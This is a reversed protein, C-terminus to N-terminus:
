AAQDIDDGNMSVEMARAPCVGVCLGCATCKDEDFIIAMEPRKVYLAGTPCIGTCAGCQYCKEEDRRISGAMSRVEVGIDKLYQIGKKVNSKHGRFEIVMVGEQQMLITAKLINFEIDYKKVLNYIIPQDIIEKPFRLKHIRTNM